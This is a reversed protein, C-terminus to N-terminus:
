DPPPLTAEVYGKDETVILILEDMIEKQTWNDENVVKTAINYLTASVKGTGAIEDDSDLLMGDWVMMTGKLSSAVWRKDLIGFGIDKLAEKGLILGEFNFPNSGYSWFNLVMFNGQWWLSTDLFGDSDSDNLVVYVKAKDGDKGYMILNADMLNDSDDINLVLYGRWAISAPTENNVGKASGSVNYILFYGYSPVCVSLVVFLVALGLLRKM